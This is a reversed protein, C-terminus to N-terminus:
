KDIEEILEGTELSFYYFNGINDIAAGLVMLGDEDFYYIKNNLKYFGNKAYIVGVNDIIIKLRLRDKKYDEIIEYRDENVNTISPTHRIKTFSGYKEIIKLEDDNYLVNQSFDADNQWLTGSSNINKSPGDYSNKLLAANDSVKIRDADSITDPDITEKEVPRLIEEIVRGKKDIIQSAFSNYFFTMILFLTILFIYNKTKFKIM